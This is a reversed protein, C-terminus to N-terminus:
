CGHPFPLFASASIVCCVQASKELINLCKLRVRTVWTAQDPVVVSRKFDCQECWGSDEWRRSHGPHSSPEWMTVDPQEESRGGPVKVTRWARCKGGPVLCHHPLRPCLQPCQHKSVNLSRCVGVRHVYVKWLLRLIQVRVESDVATEAKAVPLPDIAGHHDELPGQTRELHGRRKKRERPWLQQTEVCLSQLVITNCVLGNGQSMADAKSRTTKSLKIGSM